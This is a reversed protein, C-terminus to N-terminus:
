KEPDLISIGCNGCARSDGHFRTEVRVHYYGRECNLQVM